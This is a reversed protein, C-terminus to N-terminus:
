RLSCERIRDNTDRNGAEDVAVVQIEYDRGPELMTLTFSTAGPETVAAPEDFAGDEERVFIEYRIASAASQDDSAAEWSLACSDDGEEEVRDLGDFEPPVTDDSPMPEMPCMAGTCPEPEPCNQAPAREPAGSDIWTCIEERQAESLPAGEAPMRGGFPPMAGTKQWLISASCDGPVIAPGHSGGALLAAYSRLDLGGPGGDDHCETCRSALLPGIDEAFSLGAAESCEGAAGASGMGASGAGAAGGSRGAPNAASGAGGGRGAAGTATGGDATGGRGAASADQATPVVFRPDGGESCGALVGWLVSWAGFGRWNAM